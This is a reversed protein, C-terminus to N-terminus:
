ASKLIPSWILSAELDFTQGNESEERGAPSYRAPLCPAHQRSTRESKVPHEALLAGKKYEKQQSLLYLKRM